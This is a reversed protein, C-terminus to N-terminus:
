NSGLPSYTDQYAIVLACCGSVSHLHCGIEERIKSVDGRIESVIVHTNM